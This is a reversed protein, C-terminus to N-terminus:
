AGYNWAEDMVQQEDGDDSQCSFDWKEGKLFIPVTLLLSDM